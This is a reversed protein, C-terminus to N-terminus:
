PIPKTRDRVALQRTTETSKWSTLERSSPLTDFRSLLHSPVHVRSIRSTFRELCNATPLLSASLHGSAFLSGSMQGHCFVARVNTWRMPCIDLAIVTTRTDTPLVVLMEAM